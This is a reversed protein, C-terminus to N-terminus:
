DNVNGSREFRPWPTVAIIWLGIFNALPIFSLVAWWGSFGMRRLIKSIPWGLILFWFLIAILIHFGSFYHMAYM